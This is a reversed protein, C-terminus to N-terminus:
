SQVSDIFQFCICHQLGSGDTSAAEDTTDLQMADDQRQTGDGNNPSEAKKDCPPLVITYGDVGGVAGTEHGAVSLALWDNSKCIRSQKILEIVLKTIWESSMLGDWKMVRLNRATAPEPVSYRSINPDAAHWEKVSLSGLAVLDLWEAQEWWEEEDLTEIGIGTRLVDPVLMREMSQVEAKAECVTPHLSGLVEKLRGEAEGGGMGEVDAVLWCRGQGLVGESRGASKLKEFGKKGEVCSPDRLDYEVRWRTKVHRRAATEKIVEGQLGAKQYTEKGLDLRLKGNLLSFKDDVGPTGESLAIINSGPRKILDNFLRGELFASLPAILKAYRPTLLM